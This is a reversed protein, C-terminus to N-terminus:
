RLYEIIVGNPFADKEIITKDSTIYVYKLNNCTKFVGRNIAGISKHIYLTQLSYCYNFAGVGISDVSEPIELSVLGASRFAESGITKLSKPLHIHSLQPCDAFCEEGIEVVGEPIIFSSLTDNQYFFKKTLIKVQPIIKSNPLLCVLELNDKYLINGDRFLLRKNSNSLKIEKVSSDTGFANPQIIRVSDPIFVIPIDQRNAFAGACITRTWEPIHAGLTSYLLSSDRVDFLNGDLFRYCENRRCVRFILRSNCGEFANPLIDTVTSPITVSKLNKFNAFRVIEEYGKPIILKELLSDGNEVNISNAECGDVRFIPKVVTRRSRKSVDILVCDIFYRTRLMYYVFGDVEITYTRPSAVTFLTLTMFFVLIITQKLHHKKHPKM